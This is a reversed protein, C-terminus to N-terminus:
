RRNILWVATVALVGGSIMSPEPVEKLLLWSLLVAFGPVLFTFSGARGGGLRKAALFYLGTGISGAFVALYLTNLWFGAPLAALGTFNKEMFFLLNFVTACGYLGANYFLAPMQKQAKSSFVTLVAWAFAAALFLLNGSSVVASFSYKWPSILLAGGAIGLFLGTKQSPLLPEKTIARNLVLAFLPNLTTVIIGGKGALGNKLGQFFLHNYIILVMASAILWLIGHLSVSFHKINKERFGGTVAIGAYVPFFSLFSFLFRWFVIVHAPATAAVLKGSVWSAGWFLMASMM